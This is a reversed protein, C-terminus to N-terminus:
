PRRGAWPEPRIMGRLTYLQIAGQNLLREGTGLEAIGSDSAGYGGRAASAIDPLYYDPWDQYSNDCYAYIYAHPLASLERLDKQFKSFPEGPLTVIGITGNILLSTVGLRMTQEPDWRRGVTLVKTQALLQASEGRADKMRGLTGLVEGALLEGMRLVHSYDRESDGTRGMFLPNIDGGCGQVFMCKAEGGLEEEVKRYMAGAYDASIKLNKPGLAVPHCAYNVLVVRIKGDGDTIRIVGVTPDVPGYPIRDLNEFLTTALGDPDRRLRNYGLQISGESAAIYAPFRNQKAKVIAEFIRDEVTQRWPKEKSPFDDLNLNPGAHTHSCLLLLEDIGVSEMRGRLRPLQFECVDWSVLAIATEKSQLVLVKALLPDLVGDAGEKRSGYGWMPCGLPPTIDVEASGAQIAPEEAISVAPILLVLPVTLWLANLKKM